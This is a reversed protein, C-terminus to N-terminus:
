KLGIANLQEKSLLGKIVKKNNEHLGLMIKDLSKFLEVAAKPKKQFQMHSVHDITTYVKSELELTGINLINLVRSNEGSDFWGQHIHWYKDSDMANKTVYRSKINFLDGFDYDDSSKSSFKDVCQLVVGQVGCSKLEISKSASLIYEMAEGWIENWRSYSFCSVSIRNATVQLIWAPKGNPMFRQLTVGADAQVSEKINTGDISVQVTRERNFLPLKNSFETQLRGLNQLESQSFNRDFLINFSVADIANIKNIPTFKTMIM